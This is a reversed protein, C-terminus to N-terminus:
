VLFVNNDVSRVNAYYDSTQDMSSDKKKLSSTDSFKYKLQFTFRKMLIHRHIKSIDLKFFQAHSGLQQTNALTSNIKVFDNHIFKESSFVYIGTIELLNWEISHSFGLILTKDRFSFKATPSLCLRSEPSEGSRCPQNKPVNKNLVEIEVNAIMDIRKIRHSSSTKNTPFRLM